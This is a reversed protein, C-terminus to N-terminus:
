LVLICLSGALGNLALMSGRTEASVLKAMQSIALMFTNMNIGLAFTFGVDFILGLEGVDNVAVDYVLLGLCLVLSLNVGTMLYYIKVRDSYYGVILCSIM